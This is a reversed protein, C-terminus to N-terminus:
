SALLFHPQSPFVPMDRTAEKVVELSTYASGANRVEVEALGIAEVHDFGHGADALQVVEELRQVRAQQGVQECM